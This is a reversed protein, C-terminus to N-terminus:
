GRQEKWKDIAALAEKARISGWHRQSDVIFERCQEILADTDKHFLSHVPQALPATFLAVVTNGGETAKRAEDAARPGRYMVDNFTDHFGYPKVVEHACREREESRAKALAADLDAHDAPLALAQQGHNDAYQLATMAEQSGTFQYEILGAWEKLAERMQAERAQSALLEDLRAASIAQQLDWHSQDEKLESRLKEAEREGEERGALYGEHRHEWQADYPVAKGFRAIFNAEHQPNTM